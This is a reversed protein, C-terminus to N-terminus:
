PAVPCHIQSINSLTGNKVIFASHFIEDPKGSYRSTILPLIHLIDFQISHYWYWTQHAIMSVPEITM